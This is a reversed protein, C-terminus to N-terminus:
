QPFHVDMGLAEFIGAHVDDGTGDLWLSTGGGRRQALGKKAQKARAQRGAHLLATALPVASERGDAVRNANM